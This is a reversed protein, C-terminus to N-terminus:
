SSTSQLTEQPLPSQEEFAPTRRLMLAAVIAGIIIVSWYTVVRDLVAVSGAMGSPIDVITLATVIAVEVVGLGAPTFPLTTLLASLLAVFLAMSMAVNAGLSESVLFVRLGECMWIVVAFAAPVAPRRMTQFLAAQFNIYHSRFRDPILAEIRSRCFYMVALGTAVAVVMSVGLYLATDAQGPLTGHFALLGSALLLVVLVALDFVREAIITGFGISYRVGDDRKVRYARYADGLKAPVICNILWSVTYVGTLYLPSPLRSGPTSGVGAKDLMWRWRLARIFLTFYYVLFALAMLGINAEQINSWIESFDLDTRTAFVALIVVALLFSLATRPRLLQNRVTRGQFDPSDIVPQDVDGDPLPSLDNYSNENVTTTSHLSDAVLSVDDGTQKALMRGEIM